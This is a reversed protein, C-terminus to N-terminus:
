GLWDEIKSLLNEMERASLNECTIQGAPTYALIDEEGAPRSELGHEGTSEPRSGFEGAVYVSAAQALATLRKELAKLSEANEEVLANEIVKALRELEDEHKYSFKVATLESKTLLRQVSSTILITFFLFASGLALWNMTPIRALFFEAIAVVAVYFIALEFLRRTHERM